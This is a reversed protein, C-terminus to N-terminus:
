QKQLDLTLLSDVIAEALSLLRFPEHKSIELSHPISDTIWFNSFPVPEKMTFKEWSREPFVPHTVFLSIATAGRSQLVQFAGSFSLISAGTCCLIASYCLVTCYCLITCYCLVTCYCLIACYCLITCYCPLM